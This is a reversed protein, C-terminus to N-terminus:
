ADAIMQTREQELSRQEVSTLTKGLKIFEHQAAQQIHAHTVVDAGADAAIFAAGIAINRISGGAINLEALTEYRVDVPLQAPFVRQWIQLRQAYDPFPFDVIFRLRRLFATDLADKMNTTLIALGRYDEMRQLLYSIGVNAYRDHSDKVESRKGFLADAEDFLLIVGGAEAADFVQRLHKETEGIYKSMVSSLDIRYVDLRLATSLVEAAMTKGTGSPGAFLASIGLGRTGKTNFGWTGYVMARQHVQAAIQQVLQKPRDPLVLNDWRATSEVRQALDDLKPRAQTRCTDWLATSLSSASATSAESQIKGLAGAGAARIDPYSFNFQYVLRDVQGNVSPDADALVEHWFHRQEDLTPLKLELTLMPRLSSPRREQTSVLLFGRCHEIWYDVVRQSNDAEGEVSDLELLLMNERLFAERDWLRLLQQLQEPRTPLANATMTNLGFGMQRSVALAVSRRTSQNAGTLQVVPEDPSGATKSWIHAVQDAFQQHSPALVESETLSQMIGAFRQDMAPVGTLYFLIHPDIRLRSTTLTSTDALDILQWYRLAAGPSLASWDSGPLVAALRLTPYALREDGQVAACYEAIEEDLEMGVCLLLLDAEFPSLDFVECLRSLEAPAPLSEATVQLEQRSEEILNDDWEKGSLHALERELYRRVLTVAAMLYRRNALQWEQYTSSSTSM